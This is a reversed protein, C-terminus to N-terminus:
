LASECISLMVLTAGAKCLRERIDDHNVRVFKIEIETQISM